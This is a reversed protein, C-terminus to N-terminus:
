AALQGLQSRMLHRLAVLLLYYMNLVASPAKEFTKTAYIYLKTVNDHGVAVSMAHSIGRGCRVLVINGCSSLATASVHQPLPQIAFWKMSRREWASYLPKSQPGYEGGAWRCM